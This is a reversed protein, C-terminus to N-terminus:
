KKDTLKDKSGGNNVSKKAMKMLQKRIFAARKQALYVTAGNRMILFQSSIKDVYYLNVVFSQHSMAFGYTEMRNAINGIKEKVSIYTKERTVIKIKRNVYEFYYIDEVPLKIITNDESLFTEYDTKSNCQVMKIAETLVQQLEEKAIPKVLYGYSHIQNIAVAMRESINTVYIIVINTNRKRVEAGIQIGDKEDMIIDLFLIDPRFDAELFQEGSEYTNICFTEEETSECERVLGLLNERDRKEDDCIAIRIM